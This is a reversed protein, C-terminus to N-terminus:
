EFTAGEPGYRKPSGGGSLTEVPEPAQTVKKVSLQEAKPKIQTELYIAARMPDLSSIKDLELPNSALFKTMLPGKDDELIFMTLDDSLHGALRQGAQQLDSSEIGLSKARETYKQAKDVLSKTKAEQERQAQERQQQEILRQRADYEAQALIAKDRAQVKSEYDDDFPDPMQPINPRQEQPKNRELEELRRRLEEKERKAQRAEYAKEAIIKQYDPTEEEKDTATVSEAKEETEVEEVEVTEPQEIVDNEATNLQESM